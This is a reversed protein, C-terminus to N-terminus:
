RRKKGKRQKEELKKKEKREEKDNERAPSIRALPFGSVQPNLTGWNDRAPLVLTRSIRPPLGSL